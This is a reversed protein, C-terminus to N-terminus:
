CGVDGRHTFVGEISDIDEVMGVYDLRNVSVHVFDALTDYLILTLLFHRLLAEFGRVHIEINTVRFGM